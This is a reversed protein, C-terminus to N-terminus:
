ALSGMPDWLPLVIPTKALGDKASDPLFKTNIVAQYMFEDMWADTMVLYGKDGNEPGHSNQIRWRVPKGTQEDLHVGTLIMAHTMSSEGARLRDAKSQELLTTGFGAEYDIVGLDMVGSDRNRFKGFDCGFFIPHGAKITDVCATKLTEMDVNLYTTPRGGVVNGLRDVTLLSNMPNRPDNVISVMDDIVCETDATTIARAFDVPTSRVQFVKKDKNTYQWVFEENPAPPAGLFTTLIDQFAKMQESKLKSVAAADEAVAAKRLTMAFERLKTQLIGRMIRSNKANWNDRYLTQPVIGYKAVLNYIMDWQGGDGMPELLLRQVVRDDIDRTATDAIHELFYNAKELKDWYYLYQQSLEFSELNDRKMIPVRLVNTAAFIWCRGSAKQATVPSGELPVKTNFVHANASISDPQTLTITPDAKSLALQRM